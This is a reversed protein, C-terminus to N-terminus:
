GVIPGANRVGVLFGHQLGEGAAVRRPAHVPRGPEAEPQGDGAGDRFGMAAVERQMIFPGRPQDGAEPQGDAVFLANAGDAISLALTMLAPLPVSVTLLLCISSAMLSPVIPGLTTSM